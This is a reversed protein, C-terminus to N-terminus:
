GNSVTVGEWRQQVLDSPIGSVSSSYALIRPNTYLWIHTPENVVSVEVANLGDRQIDRSLNRRNRRPDSRLLLFQNRQTLRGSKREFPEAFRNSTVQRAPPIGHTQLRKIKTVM